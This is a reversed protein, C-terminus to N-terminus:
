RTTWTCGSQRACSSMDSQFGCPSAAGFCTDDAGLACGRQSQCAAGDLDSCSTAWGSCSLPAAGGDSNSAPSTTSSGSGFSGASSTEPHSPCALADCIGDARIDTCSRGFICDDGDLHDFALVSGRCALRETPLNPCCALLIDVVQDCAAEDANPPGSIECAVTSGLLVFVVLPALTKKV